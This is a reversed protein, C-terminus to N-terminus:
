MLFRRTRHGDGIEADTMGACTHIGSGWESDDESFRPDLLHTPFPLSGLRPCQSDGFAVRTDLSGDTM